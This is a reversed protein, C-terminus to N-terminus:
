ATPLRTRRQPSSSRADHATPDTENWTNVYRQALDDFTM